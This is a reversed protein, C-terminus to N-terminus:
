VPATPTATRSASGPARCRTTCRRRRAAPPDAAGCLSPSAAVRTAAPSRARCDDHAHFRHVRAPELSPIPRLRQALRRCRSDRLQDPRTELSDRGRASRRAASRRSFWARYWTQCITIPMRAPHSAPLITVAAASEPSKSSRTMPMTLRQEAAEKEARQADPGSTQHTRQDNRRDAGHQQQIERPQDTREPRVAPSVALRPRAPMHRGSKVGTFPVVADEDDAAAPVAAVPVANVVLDSQRPLVDARLLQRHVDGRNRGAADGGRVDVDAELHHEVDEFAADPVLVAVPQLLDDLVGGAVEDEDLGANRVLHEVGAVGIRDDGDDGARVRALPLVDNEYVAISIQHDCPITM